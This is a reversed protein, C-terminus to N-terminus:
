WEYISSPPPPFSSPSVAHQDDKTIERIKALLAPNEATQHAIALNRAM